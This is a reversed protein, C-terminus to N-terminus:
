FGVQGGGDAGEDVGLDGGEFDPQDLVADEGVVRGGAPGGFGLQDDGRAFGELGGAGLVGGLRRLKGVLLAIQGLVVTGVVNEARELALADAGVHALVLVLQAPEVAGRLLALLAVTVGVHAVKLADGGLQRVLLIAHIALSQTLARSHHQPKLVALSAPVARLSARIHPQRTRLLILEPPDTLALLTNIPHLNTRGSSTLINARLPGNSLTM